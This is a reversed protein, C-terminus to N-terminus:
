ELYTYGYLGARYTSIFEKGEEITIKGEAIAKSVWSELRRVLRKPDYHVYELVDGVTGGGRVISRVQYSIKDGVAWALLCLAVVVVPARVRSKDM